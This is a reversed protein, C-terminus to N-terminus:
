RGDVGDRKEALYAGLVSMTAPNLSVESDSHKTDPLAFHAEILPFPLGRATLKDAAAMFHEVETTHFSVGNAWLPISEMEDASDPYSGPCYLFAVTHGYENACSAVEAREEETKVSVYFHARQYCAAAAFIMRYQSDRVTPRGIKLITPTWSGVFLERVAEADWLSLGYGLGEKRAIQGFALHDGMSFELWRRHAGEIPVESLFQRASWRDSPRTSGDAFWKPDSRKQMKVFEAGAHKAARIMQLARQREGDHCLGLEAVLTPVSM